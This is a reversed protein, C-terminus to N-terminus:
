PKEGIFNKQLYQLATNTIQLNKDVAFKEANQLNGTYFRLWLLNGIILGDFIRDEAFAKVTFFGTLINWSLSLLGSLYEGTYFQGLGPILYSSYKAFNESYKDKNVSSCFTYLSSDIDKFTDAAVDWKDEFIYNWGRWYKLKDKESQFRKDTELQDLINRAQNNARRLINTRAQMIKASYYENQNQANMEALVFYRIADDFKGGAKYSMAILFNSQYVYLKEYDFCQLRKFETIADFYKEEDFYKKALNYQNLLDDQAILESLFILVIFLITKSVSDM